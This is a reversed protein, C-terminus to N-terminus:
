KGMCRFFRVPLICLAPRDAHQQVDNVHKMVHM